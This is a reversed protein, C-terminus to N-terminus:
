NFRAVLYAVEDAEVARAFQDREIREHMNRGPQLAAQRPRRHLAPQLDRLPRSPSYPEDAERPASSPDIRVPSPNAM